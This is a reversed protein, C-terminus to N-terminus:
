PRHYSEVHENDATVATLYKKDCFAQNGCSVVQWFLITNFNKM